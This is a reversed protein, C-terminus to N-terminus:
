FERRVVLETYAIAEKIINNTLHMLPANYGAWSRYALSPGRSTSSVETFPMVYGGVGSFCVSGVLRM